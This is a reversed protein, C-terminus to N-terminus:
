FNFYLFPSNSSGVIYAISLVLLLGLVVVKM